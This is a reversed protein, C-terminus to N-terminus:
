AQMPAHEIAKLQSQQKATQMQREYEDYVQGPSMAEYHERNRIAWIRHTSGKRTARLQVCHSLTKLIRGCTVPTFTHEQSYMLHPAVLTGARLTNSMEGATMLDAHFAGVGERIFAEITQEASTKSSERIERLFDTVPPAEHPNFDSLDM